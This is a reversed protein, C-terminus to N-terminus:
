QENNMALEEEFATQLSPPIPPLNTVVQAAWATYEQRREATWDEPPTRRLDRLNCLKDAAKIVAAGASKHPAHVVQLRKREAKPLSKDDTLELVLALIESGFQSEIDAPTVATDEITDHLVAACLVAGDRVGHQWLLYMVELPHSIYPQKEAGKRAQGRHAKEAFLIAELLQTTPHSPLM